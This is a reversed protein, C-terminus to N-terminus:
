LMSQGNFQTKAPKTMYHILGHNKVAGDFLSLRTM